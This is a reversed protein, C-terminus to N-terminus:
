LSEKLLEKRGCRVSTCSDVMNLDVAASIVLSHRTDFGIKIHLVYLAHGEWSGKSVEPLSKM